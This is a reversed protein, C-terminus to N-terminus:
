PCMRLPSRGGSSVPLYCHLQSCTKNQYELRPMAIHFVSLDVTGLFNTNQQLSLFSANILNIYLSIYEPFKIMKLQLKSIMRRTKGFLASSFIQQCKQSRMLYVVDCFESASLPGCVSGEMQRCISQKLITFNWVTLNRCFLVNKGDFGVVFERGQLM